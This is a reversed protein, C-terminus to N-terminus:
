YVFHGNPIITLEVFIQFTEFKKMEHDLCDSVQRM